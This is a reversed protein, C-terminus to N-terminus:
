KCYLEKYEKLKIKSDSNLSRYIRCFISKNKEIISEVDVYYEEAYEGDVFPSLELYLKLFGGKNKVANEIIQLDLKSFSNNIPKGKEPDTYSYYISFEEQTIPIANQLDSLSVEKGLLFRHVIADIILQYNRKPNTQGNNKTNGNVPFVFLVIFLFAFFTQKM